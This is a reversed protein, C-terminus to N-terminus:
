NPTVWSFCAAPLFGGSVFVAGHRYLQWSSGDESESMDLVWLEGGQNSWVTRAGVAAVATFIEQSSLGPKFLVTVTSGDGAPGTSILGTGIVMGALVAVFPASQPAGSGPHRPRLLWGAILFAIGFLTFWVLDWMLPSSTDMRVRHFGLLWHFLIIDLIHWLGFGLLVNALLLRDGKPRVADQRGRWLLFLGLVAVVYMGLHFLGDAMVQIRLDRFTAGELGSLLHHWQLIQHLLIGDFFGGLAFGLCYGAWSYARSFPSPVAPTAAM